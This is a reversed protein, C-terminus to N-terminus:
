QREKEDNEGECSSRVRYETYDSTFDSWKILLNKHVAASSFRYFTKTRMQSKPGIKRYELDQAKM